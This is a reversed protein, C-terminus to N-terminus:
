WAWGGRPGSEPAPTAEGAVPEHKETTLPGESVCGTLLAFVILLLVLRAMQHLTQGVMLSDCIPEPSKGGQGQESSGQATAPRIVGHGVEDGRVDGISMGPACGDDDIEPLLLGIKETSFIPRRGRANGTPAFSVPRWHATELHDPFIQIM